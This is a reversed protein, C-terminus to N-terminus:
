PLGRAGRGAALGASTARIMAPRRHQERWSAPRGSERIGPCTTPSVLATRRASRASLEPNYMVVGYEGVIRKKFMIDGALPEDKEKFIGNAYPAVIIDKPDYLFYEDTHVAYDPATVFDVRAQAEYTGVFNKLTSQAQDVRIRSSLFKNIQTKQVENVVCIMSSGTGLASQTGPNNAGGRRLITEIDSDLMDPTITVSGANTVVGNYTDQWYTIGSATRSDPISTTSNSIAGNSKKRRFMIQQLKNLQVELGKSLQDTASNDPGVTKGDLGAATRTQEFEFPEIIETFCERRSGQVHDSRDYQSGEATIGPEIYVDAAASHTAATSSLQTGTGRLCATCTITSSTVVPNTVVVFYESDIMLVSGAKVNVPFIALNDLVVDTATNVSTSVAANLTTRRFPQVRHPVLVRPNPFAMGSVLSLNLPDRRLESRERVEDLLYEEVLDSEVSSLISYDAVM